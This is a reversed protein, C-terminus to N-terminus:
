NHGHRLWTVVLTKYIDLEACYVSLCKGPGAFEHREVRDNESLAPRKGRGAFGTSVTEGLYGPGHFTPGSLETGVEWPGLDKGRWGSNYFKYGKTEWTSQISM